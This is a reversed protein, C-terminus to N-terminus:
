FYSNCTENFGLTLNKLDIDVEKYTDEISIGKKLSERLIILLLEIDKQDM